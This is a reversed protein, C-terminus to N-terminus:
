LPYSDDPLRLRLGLASESREGEAGFYRIRGSLEVLIVERSGAALYAALKENLERRTNSESQVEICIDPAVRQPDDNAYRPSWVVDPIFVGSRTLVGVGPLSEGGLERDLQRMFSAVIRQHATKPPTMPLIDGYADLEFREPSRPDGLLTRWRQALEEAPLPAFAVGWPSAISPRM